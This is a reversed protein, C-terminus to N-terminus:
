RGARTVLINRWVVGAANTLTGRVSAGQVRFTWTWERMPCAVGGDPAAHCLLVGMEEEKGGVVKNMIWELREPAGRAPTGARRVHYVVVEDHCAPRGAATCLSTGRWTGALAPLAQHTTSQAKAASPLTLLAALLPLLLARM